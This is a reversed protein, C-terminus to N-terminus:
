DDRWEKGTMNKYWQKRADYVDDFNYCYKDRNPHYKLPEMQNLLYKVLDLETM